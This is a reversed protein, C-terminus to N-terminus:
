SPKLPLALVVTLGTIEMKQKVKISIYKFVCHDLETCHVNDAKGHHNQNEANTTKNGM